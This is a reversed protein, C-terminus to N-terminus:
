GHQDQVCGVQVEVAGEALAPKASGGAPPPQRQAICKVADDLLCALGVREADGAVQVLVLVDAGVRLRHEHVGEADSCRGTKRAGPLWSGCRGPENYARAGQVGFTCTKREGAGSGTASLSPTTSHPTPYTPRSSSGSTM